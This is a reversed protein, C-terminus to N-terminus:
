YTTRRSRFSVSLEEAVTPDRHGRHVMITAVFPRLSRPARARAGTAIRADSGRRPRRPFSRLQRYFRCDTLALSSSRVVSRGTVLPLLHPSFGIFLAIADCQMAPIDPGGGREFGGTLSFRRPRPIVPFVTMAAHQRLVIYIRVKLRPGREGRGM